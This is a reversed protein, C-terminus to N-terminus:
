RAAPASRRDRGQLRSREIDVLEPVTREHVATVQQPSRGGTTIDTSIVHSGVVLQEVFCTGEPTWVLTGAVFCDQPEPVAQPDGGAPYTGDKAKGQLV